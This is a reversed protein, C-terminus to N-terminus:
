EMGSHGSKMIEYVPVEPINFQTLDTASYGDPTAGDAEFGEFDELLLYDDTQAANPASYSAPLICVALAIALLLTVARKM